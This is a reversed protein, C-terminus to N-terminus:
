IFYFLIFFGVGDGARLFDLGVRGGYGWGGDGKVGEM